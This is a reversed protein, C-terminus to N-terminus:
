ELRTPVPINKRLYAGVAARTLRIKEVLELTTLALAKADSFEERLRKLTTARGNRSVAPLLSFDPRPSSERASLITNQSKM